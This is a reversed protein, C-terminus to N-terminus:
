DSSTFTGRMLRRSSLSSSLTAASKTPIDVGAAPVASAVRDPANRLRQGWDTRQWDFKLNSLGSNHPECDPLQELERRAPFVKLDLRHRVWGILDLAALSQLLKGLEKRDGTNIPPM